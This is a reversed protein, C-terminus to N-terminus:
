NVSWLCVATGGHETSRYDGSWTSDPEYEGRDLSSLPSFMNGESDKSIVVGCTDPFHSLMERLRGVTITHETGWPPPVHARECEVLPVEIADSPFPSDVFIGTVVWGLEGPVDPLRTFDWAIAHVVFTYRRPRGNEDRLEPDESADPHEVTLLDGMMVPAGDLQPHQFESM